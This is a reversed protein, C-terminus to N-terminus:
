SFTNLSVYRSFLWAPDGLEEELDSPLNLLMVATAQNLIHFLKQSFDINDMQIHNDYGLDFYLWSGRGSIGFIM